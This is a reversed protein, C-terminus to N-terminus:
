RVGIRGGRALGASIVWGRGWTGARNMTHVGGGGGKTARISDIGCFYILGVGGGCAGELSRTVGIVSHCSEGRRAFENAGWGFRGGATAARLHHDLLQAHRRGDRVPRPSRHGGLGVVRKGVEAAKGGRGPPPRGRGRRGRGRGGRSARGRRWGPARARRRRRRRCPARPPPAPPPASPAPRAAAASPVAAARRCTRGGAPPTPAPSARGAPSAPAAPPTRPAARRRGASPWRRAPPQLVEADVAGSATGPMSASAICPVFM